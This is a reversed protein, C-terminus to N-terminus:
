LLKYFISPIYRRRRNFILASVYGDNETVRDRLLEAVPKRTKEATIVLMTADARKSVSLGDYNRILSPSDIIALRFNGHLSHWFGEATSLQLTGASTLSDPDLRSVVLNSQGLRHLTMEVSTTAQDLAQSTSLWLSRTRVSTEEPSGPEGFRDTLRDSITDFQTNKGTNLDLLLVDGAIQQAAVLAFERAVTSTGENPTAGVIQMIVCYDEEIPPDLMFYLRNMEMFLNLEGGSRKEDIAFVHLDLSRHAGEASIFVARSIARVYVIGATLGIGVIVSLVLVQLRINRGEVPVEAREIVCITPDEFANELARALREEPVGRELARLIM